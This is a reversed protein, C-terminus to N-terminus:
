ACPPMFFGDSASVPIRGPLRPFPFRLQDPEGGRASRRTRRPLCIDGTGRAPTTGPGPDRILFQAVLRSTLFRPRTSDPAVSTEFTTSIRHGLPNRSSGYALRRMSEPRVRLGDFPGKGRPLRRSFPSSDCSIAPTQCLELRDRCRPPAFFADGWQLTWPLRLPLLDSGDWPALARGCAPATGALVTGVHRFSGQLCTLVEDPAGSGAPLPRVPRLPRVRYVGAPLLWLSGAM